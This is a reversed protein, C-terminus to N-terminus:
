KLNLRKMLRHLNPSNVKLQKATASLNKNNELYASQVLQTQFHDLAEKLGFDRYEAMDTSVSKEAVTNISQPSFVDASLNFHNPQLTIRDSHSISKAIVSARNIAHELERVNGPWTYSQIVNLTTAALNINAIGLKHACREAFFGAFYYLTKKM